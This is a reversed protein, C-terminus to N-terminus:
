SGYQAEYQRLISSHRFAFMIKRGTFNFDVVKDRVLRDVEANIADVEEPRFLSKLILYGKEPWHMIQERTAASFRQLGPDNALAAAGEPTDLWPMDQPAPPLEESSIPLLASRRIGYKRYMARAHRLRRGSVLNFLIYNVKLRRLRGYYRDILKRM